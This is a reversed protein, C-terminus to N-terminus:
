PGPPWFRAAPNPLGRRQRLAHRGAALGVLHDAPLLADPVPDDRRYRDLGPDARCRGYIIDIKVHEGKLLTYGASLLVGGLFLYWQMELFANSSVLLAQPQRRKRRQDPHRGSRAVDGVQPRDYQRCRHRPQHAVANGCAGGAGRGVAEGPDVELPAKFERDACASRDNTVVCGSTSTTCRDDFRAPGDRIAEPATRGARNRTAAWDALAALRGVPSASHIRVKMLAIPIARAPKKACITSPARPIAKPTVAVVTISCSPTVGNVALVTTWAASTNM